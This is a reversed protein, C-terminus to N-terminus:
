DILFYRLFLDGNNLYLDASAEDIWFRVRFAFGRNIGLEGDM